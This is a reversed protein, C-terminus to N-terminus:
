TEERKLVENLFILVSSPRASVLSLRLEPDSVVSDTDVTTGFFYRVKEYRRHRQFKRINQATVEHISM